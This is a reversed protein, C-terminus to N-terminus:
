RQVDKKEKSIGIVAWRIFPIKSIIENLLLGGAFGCVLV